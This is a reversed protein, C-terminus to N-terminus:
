PHSHSALCQRERDEGQKSLSVPATGPHGCFFITHVAVSKQGSTQSPFDVLGTLVLSIVSHYSSWLAVGHLQEHSRFEAELKAHM